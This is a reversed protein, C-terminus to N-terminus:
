RVPRACVSKASQSQVSQGQVSQGQVSQGQVSLAFAAAVPGCMGVCHGFSGLFGIAATLWLDLSTPM